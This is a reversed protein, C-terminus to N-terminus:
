FFCAFRGGYELSPVMTELGLVIVFFLKRSSMEMRLSSGAGDRDRWVEVFDFLDDSDPPPETPDVPEAGSGDVVVAVELVLLMLDETGDSDVIRFFSTRGPFALPPALALALCWKPISSIDMASESHEPTNRSAAAAELFTLLLNTRSFTPLAAAAVVDDDDVLVVLLLSMGGGDVMAVVGSSQKVDGPASEM